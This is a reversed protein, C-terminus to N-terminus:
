QYRIWNKRRRDVAINDCIRRKNNLLARSRGERKNVDRFFRFINFATTRPCNITSAM